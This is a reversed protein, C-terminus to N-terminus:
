VPSRRHRPSHPGDLATGGSTLQYARGDIAALYGAEGPRRGDIAGTLDDVKYFTLSLANEGNQRVRVIGITDDAAGATEAVAVARAVRVAGNASTFDAFDFPSTM